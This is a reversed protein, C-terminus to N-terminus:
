PEDHTCKGPPYIRRLSEESLGARRAAERGHRRVRESDEHGELIPGHIHHDYSKGDPGISHMEFMEVPFRRRMKM